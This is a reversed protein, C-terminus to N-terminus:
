NHYCVMCFCLVNYTLLSAVEHTHWRESILHLGTRTLDSADSSEAKQGRPHWYRHYKSPMPAYLLPYAIYKHDFIPMIAYMIYPKAMM